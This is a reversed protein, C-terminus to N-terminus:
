SRHNTLLHALTPRLKSSHVLAIYSLLVPLLLCLFETSDQCNTQLDLIIRFHFSKKFFILSISFSSSSGLEVFGYTAEKFLGIFNVLKQYSSSFSLSFTFFLILALVSLYRCVSCFTFLYCNSCNLILASSSLHFVSNELFDYGSM